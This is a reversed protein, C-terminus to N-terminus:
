GWTLSVRWVSDLAPAPNPKYASATIGRYALAPARLNIRVQLGHTRGTVWAGVTHILRTKLESPLPAHDAYV